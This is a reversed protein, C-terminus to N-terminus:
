HLTLEGVLGDLAAIAGELSARYGSDATLEGRRIVHLLRRLGDRSDIVADLHLCVVSLAEAGRGGVRSLADLAAIAGELGAVLSPGATLEGNAIADLFWNLSNRPEELTQPEIRRRRTM